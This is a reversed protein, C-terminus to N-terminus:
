DPTFAPCPPPLVQDVLSFSRATDSAVVMFGEKGVPQVAVGQTNSPLFATFELRGASLLLSTCSSLPLPPLLRFVQCRFISLPRLPPSPAM